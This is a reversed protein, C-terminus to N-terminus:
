LKKTMIALTEEEEILKIDFGKYRDWYDNGCRRWHDKFASRLERSPEDYIPVILYIKGDDKLIRHLEKIALDEEKIQDIVHSLVIVDFEKDGFETERLDVKKDPLVVSSKKLDEESRASYDGSVYDCLPRWKDELCGDPSIHLMKGVPEVYKYLMNHRQQAKCDNCRFCVIPCWESIKRWRSMEGGCINCKMNKM